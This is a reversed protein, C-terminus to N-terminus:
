NAPSNHYAAVYWQEDRRTLVWTCRVLGGAPLENQGALLIGSETIVV